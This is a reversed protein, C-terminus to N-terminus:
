RAPNKKTKQQKQRYAKLLWPDQRSPIRSKHKVHNRVSYAIACAMLLDFHRTTLRPDTEKDMLDGTTYSRAEAILDPDNLAILGNELAHALDALMAPKTASNTHWGYETSPTFSIKATSRQTKHIQSTTYITKLIDLTSGYNKEPAVYCEGFRKGQQAIVHAFADPKVENNRYTAIVQIPLTDLDLFVSTSSDLGLGGAVDFGAAVRNAPQYRKFIRLGAVEDIPTLPVQQEISERDFYVDKTASPKCLYEGEYDDVSKRLKEIDEYTYRDWAPVGKDIIPVILKNQPDLRTVLKHVNGRESIYNCTYESGGGKALGNRAEEMNAWIKHTTVASFLSLRTEFDDYWDFDPRSEDQLAGRQDTGITDAIMKVGTATTFSAMTEERKAETKEFIEPYIDKVRRSILMNYVDTVSQKANGIDKSLVRLYRRHHTTDNAIVFARFLKARTTKASGRFAINLFEDIKGLYLRARKLDMEDHFPADSSPFFKPFFWRSWIQFKLVLKEPAITKEFAFLARIKQQDGSHLIARVKDM